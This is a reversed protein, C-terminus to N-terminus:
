DKKVEIIRTAEKKNMNMSKRIGINRLMVELCIKDDFSGEDAANYKSKLQSFMEFENATLDNKQLECEELLELVQARNALDLM